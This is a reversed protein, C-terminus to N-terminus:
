TLDIELNATFYQQAPPSVLVRKGVVQEILFVLGVAFVFELLIEHSVLDIGIAFFCEDRFNAPQFNYM